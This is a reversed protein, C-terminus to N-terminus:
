PHADRAFARTLRDLDFANAQQYARKVVRGVLWSIM